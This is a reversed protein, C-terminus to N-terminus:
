CFMLLNYSWYIIYGLLERISGGRWDNKKRETENQITEVLISELKSINKRAINIIKILRM